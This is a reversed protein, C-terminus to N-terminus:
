PAFTSRAQVGWHGDALTVIWLSPYTALATGLEDYRTFRVLLHVKDDASDVVIREDWASHHWGQEFTRSIRAANGGAYEEVTQWVTVRAGSIRVHPYNLTAANAPWNHANFTEMYADLAALAQRESDPTRPRGPAGEGLM